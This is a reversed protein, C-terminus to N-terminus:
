MILVWYEPKIEAEKDWVNETNKTVMLGIYLKENEVRLM